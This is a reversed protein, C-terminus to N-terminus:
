PSGVILLARRPSNPEAAVAPAVPPPMLSAAAQGFPLADSRALLAEFRQRLTDAPDAAVVVEAAYSPPHFNIANRGALSKFVHAENSNPHSQVGVMKGLM